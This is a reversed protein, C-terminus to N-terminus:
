PHAHPHAPGAREPALEIRPVEIPTLKGKGEEVRYARDLAAGAFREVAGRPWRVVIEVVKEAAGLGIEEQLSSGGFSGSPGVLRFISRPQGAAITKVEVRAGVAFPNRDAGRFRLTLWHGRAPDPPGPNEYLANWFKDGPQFGGVQLFLDQDGDGDLDGWAVGHGKQLHAFGGALSVPSFGQGSQNRYLANPVLTAYDADGTGLYVDLWGDNDLDGFNAGMPLLARDFGLARGVNTFRGGDNRYLVPEGGEAALDFYSAAVRELSAGYDNVYLDLDSDHDYDFFWTAFSRGEPATVGLEPAVDVFTGNGQNRYLRNPGFNSVYLDPDGDDDYDGWAVGKVLRHDEVGAAAAVDTFTGNGNNRFLQSPLTEDADGVESGLYLDLDGDLDYDAFAGSLRPHAPQALGSRGTHDVFAHASGALENHLLSLRVAGDGGLWAGRLVLLDLGGDGDYDAQVLNLGGWQRDLGWTATVDEFRGRGDNRFAKMAQCPDSTTTVLDLRGDNDFDDMVAGGALDFADVGLAPAIDQWRTMPAEFAFANAPLRYRPPVKGPWDGSLMRALNLLWAAAVNEPELRLYLTLADGAARVHSPDRHRAEESVPLHCSSARHDDVCNADEAAQFHALALQWLIKARHEPPFVERRAIALAEDLWRVAEAPRGLKLEERALLARLGANQVADDPAVAALKAAFDRRPAEGLYVNNGGTIAKCAAELDATSTAEQPLTASLLSLAAFVFAPTM